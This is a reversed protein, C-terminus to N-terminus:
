RLYKRINENHEDLDKAYHIVGDNGHLYYWYDSERPNTAAKISSLGPNCIPSPPLGTHKYTNYLSNIERNGATMVPWWQMNAGSLLSIWETSTLDELKLKSSAVAYQVTADAQLPWGSRLRKYLIGAVIPREEGEKTEREVISAMILAQDSVNGLNATRKNFNALMIAVAKEGTIDKPLLYTDPFLFGEKGKAASMFGETFVTQDKVELGRIFRDVIEEKRLGEPITVWVLDPGRVLRDVIQYMNLKSSLSYEGAQIKQARNGLRIYLKFAFASRIFKESQLKEAIASASTGKTILFERTEAQSSVPKINDNWLLMSVFTIAFVFIPVLM